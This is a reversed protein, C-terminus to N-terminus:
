GLVSVVGRRRGALLALEVDERAVRQDERLLAVAPEGLRVLDERLESCFGFLVTARCSAYGVEM